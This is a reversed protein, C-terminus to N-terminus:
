IGREDVMKVAKMNTKIKLNHINKPTAMTRCSACPSPANSFM